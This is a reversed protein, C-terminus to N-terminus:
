MYFDLENKHKRNKGSKKLREVLMGLLFSRLVLEYSYIPWCNHLRESAKVEVANDIVPNPAVFFVSLWKLLAPKSPFLKSFSIYVFDIQWCVFAAVFSGLGCSFNVWFETVVWMNTKKICSSQRDALYGCVLFYTGRCVLLAVLIGLGGNSLERCTSNLDAQYMKTQVMKVKKLIGRWIIDSCFHVLCFQIQRMSYEQESTEPGELTGQNTPSDIKWNTLSTLSIQTREIIDQEHTGAITLYM